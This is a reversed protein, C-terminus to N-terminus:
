QVYNNQLDTVRKHDRYFRILSKICSRFVTSSWIPRAFSSSCFVSFKTFISESLLFTHTVLQRGQRRLHVVACKAIRNLAGSLGFSKWGGYSHWLTCSHRQDCVAACDPGPMGHARQYHDVHKQENHRETLYFTNGAKHFVQVWRSRGYDRCSYSSSAACSSPALLSRVLFTFSIELAAALFSVTSAASAWASFSLFIDSSSSFYSTFCIGLKIIVRWSRIWNIRLIIEKNTRHKM